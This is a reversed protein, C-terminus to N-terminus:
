NNFQFYHVENLAIKLRTVIVTAVLFRNIDIASKTFIPFHKSIYKININDAFILIRLYSSSILSM